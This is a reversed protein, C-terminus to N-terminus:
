LLGTSHVRVAERQSHKIEFSNPWMATTLRIITGTTLAIRCCREQQSDEAQMDIM